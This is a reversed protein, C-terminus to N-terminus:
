KVVIIIAFKTSSFNTSIGTAVKVELPGVTRPMLFLDRSWLQQVLTRYIVM